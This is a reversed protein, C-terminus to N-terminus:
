QRLARCKGLTTNATKRLMWGMVRAGLGKNGTFTEDTRWSMACTVDIGWRLEFRPHHHSIGGGHRQGLRLTNSPPANLLALVDLLEFRSGMLSLFHHIAQVFATPASNVDAVSYALPAM